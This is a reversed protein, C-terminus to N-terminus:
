HTLIYVRLLFLNQFGLVITPTEFVGPFLVGPVLPPKSFGLYTANKWPNSFVGSLENAISTRGLFNCVRPLGM